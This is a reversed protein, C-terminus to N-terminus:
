ERFINSQRLLHKDEFVFSNRKNKEDKTSASFDRSDIYYHTSVIMGREIEKFSVCKNELSAL